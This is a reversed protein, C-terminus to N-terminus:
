GTAAQPRAALYPEISARGLQGLEHEPYGFFGRRRYEAFYKRVEDASRAEGQDAYKLFPAFDPYLATTGQREWDGHLTTKAFNGILLDDFICYEIATMLSARPLEFTIGREHEQPNIECRHEEGGVVFRVYALLKKLHSVPKFYADIKARDGAQWPASWDDGFAEPELLEDSTRPPKIPACDDRELDFRVFAPLIASNESAFGVYHSGIPTLCQNAWASDTRQYKHMAAFPVYYDIGFAELIGAIGQGFPMKDMAPPPVRQGSEDFFNIMDADGYGTLALLFTNDFKRVTERVFAGAGLDGADNSDVILHGGLDVLLIADQYYDGISCVRVKDSLRTWEGDKLVRVNYGMGALDTAIRGRSQGVTYHDPLLIEKERLTELSELSLHDPHGHSIWLYPCAQIHERQEAPIEHTHKWSGFYASGDLWPDTALVPGDDHCILTANGITEFGLKM